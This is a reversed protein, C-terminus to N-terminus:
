SPLFSGVKDLCVTIKEKVENLEEEIDTFGLKRLTSDKHLSFVEPFISLTRNYEDDPWKTELKIKEYLPRIDVQVYNAFFPVLAYHCMLDDRIEVILVELEDCSINRWSGFNSLMALNFRWPSGGFQLLKKHIFDKNEDVNYDM